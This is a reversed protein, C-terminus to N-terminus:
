DLVRRKVTTNTSDTAQSAQYDELSALLVRIDEAQTQFSELRPGSLKPTAIMRKSLPDMWRGNAQQFGFHLHPGTSRGTNGVRGIVQGARVSQGRGVHRKSMHLYWSQTGDSHRISIYNGNNGKFESNTVMGNAVAYVPAGIAGRYDIGNHYSRSGTVPHVRNGYRSTIHLRDLPYRLASYVLAEGDSTYHANYSSAPDPDAYLFAEHHGARPGEYEAYLVKGNIWVSDQFFTEQLLLRYRDGV